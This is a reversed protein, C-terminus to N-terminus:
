TYIGMANGQLFYILIASVPVPVFIKLMLLDNKEGTKKEGPADVVKQWSPSNIAVILPSARRKVILPYSNVEGRWLYGGIFNILTAMENITV